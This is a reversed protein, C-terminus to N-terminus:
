VVKGKTISCDMELVGESDTRTIEFRLALDAGDSGDRAGIPMLQLVKGLAVSGAPLDVPGHQTRGQRKGNSVDGRRQGQRQAGKRRDPTQRIGPRSLLLVAGNLVCGSEHQKGAERGLLVHDVQFVGSAPLWFHGPGM